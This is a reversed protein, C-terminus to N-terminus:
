NRPRPNLEVGETEELTVGDAGVTSASKLDGQPSVLMLEEAPGVPTSQEGSKEAVPSNEADGLKQTQLFVVLSLALVTLASVAFIRRRRPAVRVTGAKPAITTAIRTSSEARVTRFPQNLETPTEMRFFDRLLGDMQEDSPMRGHSRNSSADTM